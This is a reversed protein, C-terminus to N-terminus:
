FPEHVATHTAAMKGSIWLMQEIPLWGVLNFKCIMLEFIADISLQSLFHTSSFIALFYIVLSVSLSRPWHRRLCVCVCVSGFPLRVLLRNAWCVSNTMKFPKGFVKWGNIKFVKSNRMRNQWISLTQRADSRRKPTIHQSGDDPWVM